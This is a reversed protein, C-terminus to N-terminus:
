PRRCAPMLFIISMVQGRDAIASRPPRGRVINEAAAAGHSSIRPMPCRCDIRARAKGADGALRLCQEMMQPCAVSRHRRVAAEEVLLRNTKKVSNVITETDFPRLGQPQNVEADIGQRPSRPPWLAQGGHDLVGHDHRGQRRARM